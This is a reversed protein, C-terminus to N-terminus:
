LVEFGISIQRTASFASQMMYEQDRVEETHEKLPVLQIM